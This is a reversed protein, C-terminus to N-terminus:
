LHFGEEGVVKEREKLSDETEGIERKTRRTSISTMKIHLSTFLAHNLADLVACHLDQGAMEIGRSHNRLRQRRHHCRVAFYILFRFGPLNNESPVHVGRAQGHRLGICVIVESPILLSEHSADKSAISLSEDFPGFVM